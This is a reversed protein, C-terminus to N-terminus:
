GASARAPSKSDKRASRATQGKPVNQATQRVFFRLSRVKGGTGDSAWGFSPVCAVRLGANETPVSSIAKVTNFVAAHNDAYVHVACAGVRQVERGIAQALKKVAGPKGM